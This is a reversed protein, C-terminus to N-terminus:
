AAGHSGGRAVAQDSLALLAVLGVIMGLAKTM